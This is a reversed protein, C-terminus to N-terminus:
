APFEDTEHFAAPRTSLQAGLHRSLRLALAILHLTPNAQSSTPFVASGALYLNGVGHVRCDADVVSHRSDAGMRATGIHHGGYAGFRTMDDALKDRDFRLSIRGDRRFEEAFVDLSRGISEIDSRGYRWDVKIQPMGLADRSRILTVRSEPLPQQEANIELSFRNSRNRLIVSPFKRQAFTRRRMWHALFAATDLSDAVVNRMHSLYHGVGSPVGDDLRKGYEYRVLGKVLCLGSLVGIRHAPDTVRPFHLRAVMNGVGLRRQEAPNLALRRRCYVGDKSVLYGHGVDRTPGDVLLEGANGAIHCMYYRGVMDHLNGVGRNHVDNSSLLLRPTELGGTAVVFHRAAVTFRHGDLTAIDLWDVRGGDAALRIATCNARLVVRLDSAVELRRRYREAFHTPCSFRELGNTSIRDSRFGAFLATASSDFATDADYDCAGAEALRTAAPYYRAVEDYGIPWGSNPMYARPEFDIPDFPVCRGGWIATSGGFCRQRYRHPPSHLRADAVEGEYLAQTQPTTEFGGSELLVVELGRGSLDLALTIGAAGAGVICVDAHLRSHRDISNADLIM